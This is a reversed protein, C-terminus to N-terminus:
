IKFDCLRFKDYESANGLHKFTNWGQGMFGDATDLLMSWSSSVMNYVEPLPNIKIPLINNDYGHIYGFSYISGDEVLIFTYQTTSTIGFIKGFQNDIQIKTFVDIYPSIYGLGLEGHENYGKAYLGTSTLVFLSLNKFKDTRWRTSVDFIDNVGDVNIWELASRYSFVNYYGFITKYLGNKAIIYTEEFYEFSKITLIDTPLLTGLNVKIDGRKPIRCHLAVTTLVYISYKCCCMDLVTHNSMIPQLTMIQNIKDDSLQSDTNQGCGYLGKNTLVLMHNDFCSVKLPIANNPIPMEIATKRHGGKSGNGLQGHANSGVGYLKQNKIIYTNHNSIAITQRHM